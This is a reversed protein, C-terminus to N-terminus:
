EGRNADDCLKNLHEILIACGFTLKANYLAVQIHSDIASLHAFCYMNLVFLHIVDCDIRSNKNGQEKKERM